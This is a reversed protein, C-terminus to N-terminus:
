GGGQIAEDGFFPWIQRALGRRPEQHGLRQDGHAEHLQRGRVASSPRLPGSPSISAFAQPAINELGVDRHGRGRALQLDAPGPRTWPDQARELVEFISAFAGRPIQIARWRSAPNSGGDAAGSLNPEYSLASSRHNGFNRGWPRVPTTRNSDAESASIPFYM